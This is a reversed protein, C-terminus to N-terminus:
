SPSASPCLPAARAQLVPLELELATLQAAEALARVRRSDDLVLAYDLQAHALHVPARLRTNATLAREFLDAAERRRGITAALKGLYRAVSGQCAAALGVVVNSRV